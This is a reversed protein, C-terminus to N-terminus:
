REERHHMGRSQQEQEVEAAPKEGGSRARRAAREEQAAEVLQEFMARGAQEELFRGGYRNRLAPDSRLVEFDAGAEPQKPGELFLVDGVALAASTEVCVGGASADVVEVALAAGQTVHAGRKVQGTLAIGIRERRHAREPAPQPEALMRITVMERMGPLQDAALALFSGRRWGTNSMFRATFYQGPQITGRPADVNVTGITGPPALFAVPTVTPITQFGDVGDLTIPTACANLRFSRTEEAMTM